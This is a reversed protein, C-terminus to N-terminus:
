NKHPGSDGKAHHFHDGCKLQGPDKAVGKARALFWALSGGSLGHFGLGGGSRFGNAEGFLVRGEHVFICFLAFQASSEGGSLIRKQSCM